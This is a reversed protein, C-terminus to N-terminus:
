NGWDIELGGFPDPEDTPPALRRFLRENRNIDAMEIWLDAYNRFHQNRLEPLLIEEIWQEEEPLTDEFYEVRFFGWTGFQFPMVGTVSGIEMGRAFDINDPGIGAVHANIAVGDENTFDTMILEGWLNQAEEETDAEVFHIFPTIHNERNEEVYENYRQTAEEPDLVFQDSIHANVLRYLEWHEYFRLFQNRTFGWQRIVDFGYELEYSQRMNDSLTRASELEAASLTIGFEEARSSVVYLDILDGFAMDFLEEPSFFWAFDQMSRVLQDYQFLLEARSVRNGEITGAHNMHRNNVLIAAILVVAVVVFGIIANKMFNDRKRSNPKYMKIERGKHINIVAKVVLPCYLM